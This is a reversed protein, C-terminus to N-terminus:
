QIQNLFPELAEESQELIEPNQVGYIIFEGIISCVIVSSLIINYIIIGLTVKNVDKKVQKKCM